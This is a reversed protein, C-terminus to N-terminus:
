VCIYFTPYAFTNQGEKAYGVVPTFVQLYEVEGVKHYIVHKFISPNIVLLLVIIDINLTIM